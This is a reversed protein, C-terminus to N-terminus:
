IFRTALERKRCMKETPNNSSRINKIEESYENDFGYEQM